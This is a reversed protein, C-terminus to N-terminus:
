RGSLRLWGRWLVFQMLLIKSVARNPISLESKLAKVITIAELAEFPDGSLWLLLGQAVRDDASM